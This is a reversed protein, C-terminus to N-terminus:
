AFVGPGSRSHVTHQTPNAPIDQPHSGAALLLETNTLISWHSCLQDVRGQETVTVQTFHGM